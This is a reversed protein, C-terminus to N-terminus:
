IIIAKSKQDFGIWRFQLDITFHYKVEINTNDSPLSSCFRCVTYYAPCHEFSITAVNQIIFYKLKKNVNRAAM